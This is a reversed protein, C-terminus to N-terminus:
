WRNAQTVSNDKKIKGACHTKKDLLEVYPCTFLSHISFLSSMAGASHMYLINEKCEKFLVIYCINWM